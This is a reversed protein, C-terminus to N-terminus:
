RGQDFFAHRGIDQRTLGRRKLADDSLVSLRKYRLYALWGMTLGELLRESWHLGTEAGTDRSHGRDQVYHQAIAM